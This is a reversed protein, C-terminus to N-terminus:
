VEWYKKRHAATLIARKVAVEVLKVKYGNQSLPKAGETAAKGAAAATVETVEKGELAKAAAAAIHPTPAVHGLVVRVDSARGADLKFAVAAQVLPWDYSQKHRVEYSANQLGVLPITVSLVVENPALVHERQGASSPAQFFKALEITRSGQPGQVQATAGLAILAPALTSPHVMVCKHGQTFIAHYQNEGDLAYCKNGGKLCCSVHEDRFYWCRNRQCLNGGLTGMNRIQPGGIEGAATTLAPVTDRLRPHEAIEALKTGAGITIASADVKIGSLERIGTLSVVREPQAVYEKQLDLLDTGGALLETPGWKTELLAVAQAVTEPRYYTFNRM